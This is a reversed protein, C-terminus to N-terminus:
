FINKEKRKDISRGDLRMRLEIIGMWGCQNRLIDLQREDWISDDVGDESKKKLFDAAKKIAKKCSILNGRMKTRIDDAEDVM